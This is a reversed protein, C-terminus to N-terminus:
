ADRDGPVPRGGAPGSARQRRGACATSRRSRLRCRDRALDDPHQADRRAVRRVVQELLDGGAALVVVGARDGVALRRPAPPPAARLLEAQRAQDVRLVHARDVLVEEVRAVLREAVRVPPVLDRGETVAPAPVGGLVLQVGRRKFALRVGRSFAASFEADLRALLGAVVDGEQVRREANLLRHRHQVGREFGLLDGGARRAVVLGRRRPALVALGDLVGDPRAVVGGQGVEGLVGAVGADPVVASRGPAVDVGVVPDDRREELVVGAVVVRLQVDVVRDEVADLARVPLPAGEVPAADVAEARGGGRDPLAGGLLAEGLGEPDAERHAGVALGALDDADVLGGGVQEGRAAARHGRLGGLQDGVELGAVAALGVAEFAVPEGALGGHGGAARLGVLALGALLEEVADVALQAVLDGAPQAADGLVDEGGAM